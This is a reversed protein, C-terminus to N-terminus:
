YLGIRVTIVSIDDRSGLARARGVIKHTMKDLEDEWEDTLLRVLWGDGNEVADSVGDSVLVIVDGESIELETKQADIAALIGIPVTKSHIKFIDGDRRLYTPAAGSKLISARGSLLDLEFLDVTASSEMQRAGGKSRLVGNLMRLVTATRNGAMLMKELFLSCIGSNFAAGGGTGMGDSILAYFYDRNNEFMCVSDGCVAGESEGEASATLCAREAAYRRRTTLTM